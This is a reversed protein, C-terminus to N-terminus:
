GAPGPSGLLRNLRRLFGGHASQRADRSVEEFLDILPAIAAEPRMRDLSRAARSGIRDREEPSMRWVREMCSALERDDEQSVLFGSVGDEIVQDFSAGHTGIVVRGLAMAELCANPLNDIRSPLVVFRADQILPLLDPHRQPELVFVRGNVSAGLQQQIVQGFRGVPGIFVFQLDPNRELLGPLVNVLRDCGKLYGVFGFFLAYGGSAIDACLARAGPAPLGLSFPPEIVRVTLGERAKLTEALLVSPAYVASSWKAQLIEAKELHLQRKTLPKRYMARWLPEYSSIRTVVPIASRFAAVLGSAQYSAAQVVDFPAERHRKYLASALNWGPAVVDAYGSYRGVYPARRVVRQIRTRHSVRHVLVSGNSV